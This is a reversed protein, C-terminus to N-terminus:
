SELSLIHQIFIEATSDLTISGMHEANWTQMLEYLRRVGERFTPEDSGHEMASQFAAQWSESDASTYTVYRELMEFAKETNGLNFYSDALYLPVINSDVQELRALYRTLNQEMEYDPEPEASANYVYSLMYDTWEFRDFFIAEELTDYYPISYLSRAYLNGALLVIYVGSLGSVAWLVGRRLSRKKPLPPLRDGCCLCILAFVGFAFPLYFSSSFVVEVAAHGAMFVLAAGLCPVLPSANERRWSRLVALASLLLVSLYLLLGIVGTELLAQIYHNHTYRTVYRFSQVNALSNEFAGMGLGVIPSRRFLKLGDEFFVTRQIANQNAFLGQLRNAVFGPILQYGLKISEEGCRASQIVTDTPAYFNFYVVLSDEPVAFAAGQAPGSYLVTSTHMMTDQRNQSEITVDVPASSEVTLTYSGPDPYISRRLSEGSSLQAPGTVHFAAVAYGGVLVLAGAILLFVARENGELVGTVRQGIYRDALCLLVAAAATCLLPTPQFRTWEGFATLYIPFAAAVSIVLTELMLVILHARRDRRELVLYALFGLVIMGTAGMSFALLFSLANVALCVLHFRRERGSRASSALGLSLMVGIGVSGAFINPNGFISTMRVGVEIGPINVYDQSFLGMVWLFLSSFIRTSILDISFLGSLGACCELIVASNRGLDQTGGRELALILMFLGFGTALKLFESLAFKGSVAYLTSVGNMTVWAAAALFLWNLRGALAKGGLLGAGLTCLLMLMAVVKNVTSSAGLTIALFYGATLLTLPWIRRWNLPPASRQHNQPAPQPPPPTHKKKKSVIIGEPDTYHRRM